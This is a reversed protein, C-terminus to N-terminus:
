GPRSSASQHEPLSLWADIIPLARPCLQRRRGDVPRDALHLADAGLTVGLHLDAVLDVLLMRHPVGVQGGAVGLQPLHQVRDVRPAQGEEAAQPPGQLAVLQDQVVLGLCVRVGALDEAGLRQHAPLMGLVAQEPRALEDGASRVPRMWGSVRQTRSAASRWAARHCWSPWRRETATLTEVRQRSSGLRGSWTAARRSAQFTGAPERTRSTVSLATMASGARARSTSPRRWARPTRSATSSKPVPWEEM